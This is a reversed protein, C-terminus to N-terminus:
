LLISNASPINDWYLDWSLFLYVNDVYGLTRANEMRDLDIRSINIASMGGFGIMPGHLTM